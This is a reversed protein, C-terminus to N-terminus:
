DFRILSHSLLLNNLCSFKEIEVDQYAVFNVIFSKDARADESHVRMTTIATTSTRLQKM